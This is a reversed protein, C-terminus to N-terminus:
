LAVTARSGCVWVTTSLPSKSHLGRMRECPQRLKSWLSACIVVNSAVSTKLRRTSSSRIESRASLAIVPTRSSASVENRSRGVPAAPDREGQEGRLQRFPQFDAVVLPKSRHEVDEGFLEAEGMRVDGCQDACVHVVQLSEERVRRRYRRLRLVFQGAPHRVEEM